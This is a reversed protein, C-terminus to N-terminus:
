SRMPELVAKVDYIGDENEFTFTVGYPEGMKRTFGDDVVFEGDDEMGVFGGFLVAQVQSEGEAIEVERVNFDIGAKNLAAKIEIVRSAPDMAPTKNIFALAANLRQVVEPKTVDSINVGGDEAKANTYTFTADTQGGFAGGLGTENLQQILQKYSKM